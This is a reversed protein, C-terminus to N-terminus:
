LGQKDLWQRFRDPFGSIAKECDHRMNSCHCPRDPVAWGARSLDMTSADTIRDPANHGLQGGLICYLPVGASICAPVIWGVGGVVVAAQQIASLLQTINLEGSHLVLDAPPPEGEIWEKGREIDAVSVVYFGRRQLEVAAQYVYEHKPSRATNLWEKRATVPRVIAVPRDSKIPSPGFDPLDFTAKRVELCRSMARLISGRVLDAHGYRLAIQPIHAPRQAWEYATSDANKAQTRLQTESRVCRVNPLDAYLEPWPTEVYVLGPMHRIFARQYINDGLGNLGRVLLPKATALEDEINSLPFQTLATQQTCNVINAAPFNRRVRDFIAPWRDISDANGLGKPHDVHWHAVGGTKQCDYGLLIVKKAGFKLASVIAGAGSNRYEECSIRQAGYCHVASTLLAGCFVAKVEDIHRQWWARDM